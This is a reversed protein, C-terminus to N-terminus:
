ENFLTRDYKHSSLDSTNMYISESQPTMEPTPIMAATPINELIRKRHGILSIGIDSLFNDDLGFDQGL